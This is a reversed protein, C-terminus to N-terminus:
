QFLPAPVRTVQEFYFSYTAQYATAHGSKWRLLDSPSMPLGEGNELVQVDIRGPEECANIELDSENCGVFETIQRKLDELSAGAITHSISWSRATEFLCGTEWHDEEILKLCHNAEFLTGM